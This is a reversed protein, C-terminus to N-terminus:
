RSFLQAITLSPLVIPGILCVMRAECSLAGRPGARMFTQRFDVDRADHSPEVGAYARGEAADFADVTAGKTMETPIFVGSKVQKLVRLGPTKKSIGREYVHGKLKPSPKRLGHWGSNIFAGAFFTSRGWPRATVGSGSECAGFYKLRVNGGSSRITFALSGTTAEDARQARDLTDHPLGTQATEASVTHERVARGEANLARVFELRGRTALFSAGRTFKDFPAAQLSAIVRM